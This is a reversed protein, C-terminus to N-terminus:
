SLLFTIRLFDDISMIEKRMLDDINEVFLCKDFEPITYKILYLFFNNKLLCALIEADVKAERLHKNWTFNMKNYGNNYGVLLIKLSILCM